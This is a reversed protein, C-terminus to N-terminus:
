QFGFAVRKRLVQSRSMRLDDLEIILDILLFFQDIKVTLVRDLFEIGAAFRDALLHFIQLGVDLFPLLLREHKALLQRLEITDFAFDVPL